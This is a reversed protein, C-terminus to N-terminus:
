LFNESSNFLWRVFRGLVELSDSDPSEFLEFLLLYGETHRDGASWKLPTEEATNWGQGAVKEIPTRDRKGPSKEIRIKIEATDDRRDHM